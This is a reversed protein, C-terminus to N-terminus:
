SCLSPDTRMNFVGFDTTTQAPNYAMYKTVTEGNLGNVLEITVYTRIRGENTAKTETMKSGAFNWKLYLTESPGADPADNNEITQKNLLVHNNNKPTARAYISEWCDSDFKVTLKIKHDGSSFYPAAQVPMGAVSVIVAALLTLAVAVSVFVKLWFVEQM